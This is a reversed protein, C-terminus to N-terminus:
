PAHEEFEMDQLEEFKVFDAYVVCDEQLLNAMVMSSDVNSRLSIDILVRVADHYYVQDTKKDSYIVQTKNVTVGWVRLQKVLYSLDTLQRIDIGILKRRPHKASYSSSVFRMVLLTFSVFLFGLTAGLYFGAGIMLGICACTWMGAATTIGRVRVGSLIITGAGLFGIGSIVQAGIRSPDANYMEQLYQGLLMTMTSGICVLIHTRLGAPHHRKQRDIGIVGAFLISMLLRVTISVANLGALVTQIEKM